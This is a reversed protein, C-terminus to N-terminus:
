PPACIVVGTSACIILQFVASALLRTKVDFRRELLEYATVVNYRTYIPLFTVSVIWSALPLVMYLQLFTWDSKFAQGPMAIFTITSVSVATMTIGAPIWHISRDGLFYSLGTAQRKRVALGIAATVALYVLLVLYDIKWSM